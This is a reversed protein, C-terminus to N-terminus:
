GLGAWGFSTPTSSIQPFCPFLLVNRLFRASFVIKIYVIQYIQVISKLPVSAALICFKLWGVCVRGGGVFVCM